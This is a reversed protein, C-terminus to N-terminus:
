HSKLHSKLYNKLHSNLYNKLHKEDNIHVTGDSLNMNLYGDQDSYQSLVDIFGIENLQSLEKLKNNMSFTYLKREEDSGIFPFPKAKEEDYVQYSKCDLVYPEKSDVRRTPLINYIFVNKIENDKKIELIKSLYDNCMSSILNKYNKDSIHKHIHCRVDIEGFCFILCDEDSIKGHKYFDTKLSHMLKPGLHHVKVGDIKRWGFSSHSDGFTHIM